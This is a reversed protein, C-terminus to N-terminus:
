FDLVMVIADEGEDVYYNPRIGVPRFGLSKYLQIAPENSRRVELTALSCNRARALALAEEMVVRGVGRRRHKPATAVNLVHLEDHVLWFIALGLLERGGEPRAEEVLLITSWDHDLERRLLETSWPTKFSAKELEMVAPLDEATM